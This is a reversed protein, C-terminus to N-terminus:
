GGTYFLLPFHEYITVMDTRAPPELSQPRHPASLTDHSLGTVRPGRALRAAWELPAAVRLPDLLM